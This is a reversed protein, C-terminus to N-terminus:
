FARYIPIPILPIGLGIAEWGVLGFGEYLSLMLCVRSDKMGEWLEERSETYSFPNLPIRSMAAEYAENSVREVYGPDASMGYVSIAPREPTPFLHNYKSHAKGVAKVSLGLQKLPNDEKEFRGATVVGLVEPERSSPVNVLGPILPIADDRRSLSNASRKLFPGVAFITDINEDNFTEKQSRIKSQLEKLAEERGKESLKKNSFTFSEYKEYYMHHILAVKSTGNRDREKLKLAVKGTIVDHGIWWEVNCLKEDELFTSLLIPM